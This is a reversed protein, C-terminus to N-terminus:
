DTGGSSEIFASGHPSAPESNLDHPNRFSRREGDLMRSAVEPDAGVRQSLPCVASDDTGMPILPVMAHKEELVQIM